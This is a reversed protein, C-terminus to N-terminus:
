NFSVLTDGSNVQAGQSVNVSAITCDRPATIDNEMKMAELVLLVQGKKVSDGAKVNIKVINGPMPSKVSEAGASAAVAKPEEKSVPKVPAINTVVPTVAGGENVEEVQVSYTKGNVTINYNKM